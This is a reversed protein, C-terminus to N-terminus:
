GREIPNGDLEWRTVGGDVVHVVAEAGERRLLSSAIASREGAGCVVAIPRGPDLGEPIGDIDHWPLFVSGPIHGREWESRERVDLVQTGGGELRAALGKLPLREIAVVERGEQRWSTEGGGLFGALRELGVATALRAARRGDDDDRGVFVVDQERDAIWALKSGFGARMLPICVAGPIHADDFQLDTRVDV